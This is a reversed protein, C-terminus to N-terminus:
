LTAIIIQRTTMEELRDMQGPQIQRDTLEEYLRSRIEDIGIKEITKKKLDAMLENAVKTAITPLEYENMTKRRKNLWASLYKQNAELLAKNGAPTWPFDNKLMTECLKM